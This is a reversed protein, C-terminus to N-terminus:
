GRVFGLDEFLELLLLWFEKRNGLYPELLPWTERIEGPTTFYFVDDPRAGRMLPAQFFARAELNPDKLAKRYEDLTM